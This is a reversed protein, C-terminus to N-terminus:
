GLITDFIQGSTIESDNLTYPNPTPKIKFIIQDKITLSLSSSYSFASYLTQFPNTESGDPSSIIASNSIFIEHSAPFALQFVSFLFLFFM